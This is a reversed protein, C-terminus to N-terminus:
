SVSIPAAHSFAPTTPGRPRCLPQSTLHPDRVQSLMVTMGPAWTVRSSVRLGGGLFSPLHLGAGM